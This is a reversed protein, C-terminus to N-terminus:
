YTWRPGRGATGSSNELNLKLLAERLSWIEWREFGQPRSPALTIGLRQNPWAADLRPGNSAPAVSFSLEPSEMGNGRALELVGRLASDAHKLVSTWTPQILGQDRRKSMLVAMDEYKIFLSEHMPQDRHCAACLPRLNHTANNSKNGDKHHVHLLDKRDRLSVGCDDCCWNAQRRIRESVEKWDSTYTSSGPNTGSRTPFYKFCSSYTEFFEEIDFNDRAQYRSPSSLAANKYNLHTLCNMCVYLAAEGTREVDSQRTVGSVPFIGTPNTIAFYREFRGREKMADLTKCHSIHFKKGASRDGSLVKDISHGQDPIYLLVQRGKYSLLDGINDLDDLEVEIGREGLTVDIPDLSRESIVEFSEVVGKLRNVQKWLASFDYTLNM